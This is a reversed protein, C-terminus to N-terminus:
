PVRSDNVVEYGIDLQPFRMAGNYPWTARNLETGTTKDFQIIEFDGEKGSDPSTRLLYRITSGGNAYFSIGAENGGTAADM